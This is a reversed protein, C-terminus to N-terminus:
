KVAGMTLGQVIQRQIVMFLVLTPITGIIVAASLLNWEMKYRGILSFLGVPVPKKAATMIFTQAMLFENWATIFVFIVVTVVGPWSLPLTIRWLTGFRSCGDVCAAEEVEVPISQFYSTMLWISFSLAFAANFLILAWYTDVIRFFVALKFLPILIVIPSLMQTILILRLYTRRGPFRLRAVAWAAPISCLLTLATAGSAIITSSLLFQGLPVARWVDVWNQWQIVEPFFTPPFTYVESLTKISTIAMIYFPFMLPLFAIAVLIVTITRRRQARSM